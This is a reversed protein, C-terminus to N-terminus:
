ILVSTDDESLVIQDINFKSKKEKTSKKFLTSLMLGMLIYYGIFQSYKFRTSCSNPDNPNLTRTVFIAHGCALATCLYYPYMQESLYGGLLFSSTMAFAFSNLWIKPSDGFIMTTSKLGLKKDYHYDQYAYITDYILTWFIGAVYLPLVVNWDIMGGNMASYGLIAGWNFTFGLFLQPWNTIRKMLPYLTVLLLSSAGYM